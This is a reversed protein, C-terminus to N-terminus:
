LYKIAEEKSVKQFTCGEDMYRSDLIDQIYRSDCDFYANMCVVAIPSSYFVIHDDECKVLLWEGEALEGIQMKHNREEEALEQKLRDIKKKLKKMKDNM